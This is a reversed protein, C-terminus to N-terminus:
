MCIKPLYVSYLISLIARDQDTIDGLKWKKIDHTSSISLGHDGHLIIIQKITKLTLMNIYKIQNIYKFTRKKVDNDPKFISIFNSKLETNIDGTDNFIFPEHPCLVHFLFYNGRDGHETKVAVMQEFQNFVNDYHQKSFYKFLFGEILTPLFFYYYFLM